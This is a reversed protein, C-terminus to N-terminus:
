YLRRPDSINSIIQKQSTFATSFRGSFIPTRLVPSERTDDLTQKAETISTLSLYAVSMVIGFIGLAIVLEILTFGSSDRNRM